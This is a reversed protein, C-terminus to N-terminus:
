AENYTHRGGERRRGKDDRIGKEMCEGDRERVGRRWLAGGEEMCQGDRERM